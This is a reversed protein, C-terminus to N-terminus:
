YRKVDGYGSDRLVRKVVTYIRGEDGGNIYINVPAKGGGAGAGEGRLAKDIAGGPMAGYFDDMANLPTISGRTGDGRYIFDKPTPETTLDPVAVGGLIDPRVGVGFAQFQAAVAPDLKGKMQAEIAARAALKQEGTQAELANKALEEAKEQSAGNATLIGIMADFKQKQDLQVLAKVVDEFGDEMLKDSAKQRFEEDSALKEEFDDKEKQEQLLQEMVNLSDSTEGGQIKGQAYKGLETDAWGGGRGRAGYGVDAGMREAEAPSVEKLLGMGKELAGPGFKAEIDEKKKEVGFAMRAESLSSAEGMSLRRRAEKETAIKERETAAQAELSAIEDKLAKRTEFDAGETEARMLESKKGSIQGGLKELAKSAEAETRFSKEKEELKKKEADGGFISSSAFMKVLHEIGIWINELLSAIVNSMTQSMSRTETLQDQAAKEMMTYQHEAADKLEDTQSLTGDVMAEALTKDQAITGAAKGAELERLMETQIRAINDFQEGSFGTVEEMMMRTVGSMEALTKGGSMSSGMEMMAALEGTKSLSGLARATGMTGQTAMSKERLTYLQRKLTPDEAKTLADRFEKGTMSSLAKLDFEGGKILGGMAGAKGKKEFQEALAKGQVKADTLAAQQMGKGGLMATKFREQMGMGSFTKQLGIQEKALDEGLIDVLDSFLGVTDGVRFNYLAMGSSAQNIASFFDKTTMGAKAAESYIMGFAGQIETLDSGFDRQFRNMIEATESTSIGLGQSALIATRTVDRYAQMDSTSGQVLGRFESVTLGAENLAGIYGSVEEKSMRFEYAADVTVRRLMKLRVNLAGYEQWLLKISGAQDGIIDATSASEMIAKNLEKTQGYAAGLIGVLAAIPAAVAAITSAAAALKAASAGGGATAAKAGARRELGGALMGSLKQTLGKADLNDFSFADEMLGAMEEGFEKGKQQRHRDLREEHAQRLQLLRDADAEAQKLLEKQFARERAMARQAADKEERWRRKQAEDKSADIKRQIQAVDMAAKMQRRAAAEYAKKLEFGAERGSAKMLKALPKAYEAQIGKAGAKLGKRTGDEVAGHVLKDLERQAERGRTFTGWVLNVIVDLPIAGAM